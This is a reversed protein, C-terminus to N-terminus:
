NRQVARRGRLEDSPRGTDRKRGELPIAENIAAPEAVQLSVFWPQNPTGKIRRLGPRTYVTNGIIRRVMWLKNVPGAEVIGSVKLISAPIGTSPARIGAPVGGTWTIALSHKDPNVAITAPDDLDTYRTTLINWIVSTRIVNKWDSFNAPWPPTPSYRRNQSIIGTPLGRMIFMRRHISGSELRILVGDYPEESFDVEDGVRGSPFQGRGTAGNLPVIKSDRMQAMDSVRIERLFYTNALLKLRAGVYEANSALAIANEISPVVYYTTETWGAPNQTMDNFFYDAKAVINPM